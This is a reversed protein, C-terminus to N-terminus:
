LAELRNRHVYFISRGFAIQDTHVRFRNRGKQEIVVGTMGRPFGRAIRVRSGLQVYKYETRRM